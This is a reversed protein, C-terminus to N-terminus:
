ICEEDEEMCDEEEEEEEYCCRCTFGDVKDCFPIFEWEDCDKLPNEMNYIHDKEGCLCCLVERCECGDEDPITDCGGCIQEEELPENM